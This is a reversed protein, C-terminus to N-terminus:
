TAPAVNGNRSLVGDRLLVKGGVLNCRTRGSPTREREWRCEIRSVALRLLERLEAPGVTSLAEALRWVGDALREAEADLDAAVPRRLRGRLADREDGARRLETAVEAVDAAIRAAKALNQIERDLEALRRQIKKEERDGGAAQRELDARISAVLEARGPGLFEAQLAPVLWGLLSAADVTCHGCASRAGRERYGSCVYTQYLHRNRRVTRGQMPRGCHSCFVLGSLPYAARRASGRGARRALRRQVRDFLGADILGASAGDVVVPAADAGRRHSPVIDIGDSTHYKARSSENWRAAGRYVPNGLLKRLTRHNWGRGTPSPYGADELMRCVEGLSVDATAFKKFAFRVADAEPGEGPVLRVVHDRCDKRQKPLLRRVANGATDVQVRQMAFAARGGNRNGKRANTLQGRVVNYARRRNEMHNGEASFAWRLRDMSEQPDIRGDRCTLILVGARKCTRIIDMGDAADQRGLRSTDWALVADFRGAAVADLLQAFEPRLERGSDGSLGRDIFVALIDVNERAALKRIEADQQADSGDQQDSSYRLYAAGRLREGKAIM